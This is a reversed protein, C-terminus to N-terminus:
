GGDKNEKELSIVSANYDKTNCMKTYMNHREEATSFLYNYLVTCYKKKYEQDSLFLRDLLKGM